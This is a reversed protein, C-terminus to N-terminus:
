SGNGRASSSGSCAVGLLEPPVAHEDPLCRVTDVGQDSNDAIAARVSRILGPVMRVGNGHRRGHFTALWTTVSSWIEPPRAMRVTPTPAM